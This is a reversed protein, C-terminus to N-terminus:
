KAALYGRRQMYSVFAPGSVLKAAHKGAFIPLAALDAAMAPAAARVADWAAKTHESRPNKAGKATVALIVNSPTAKRSTVKALAVIPAAPVAAPVVKIKKAM